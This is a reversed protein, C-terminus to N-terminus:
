RGGVLRRAAVGGLDVANRRLERAIGTDSRRLGRADSESLEALGVQNGTWRQLDAVMGDLQSRWLPDEEDTRVPRVVLLDIDSQVDGDGRATSGFISAHVPQLEWERITTRLREVLTSRLRALEDVLPAAIHDRNLAYLRARGAPWSDVLGHAVQRNLALRVGPESGARALRWVHRASLPQTTRALVM